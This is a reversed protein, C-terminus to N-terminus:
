LKNPIVNSKRVSPTQSKPNLHQAENQPVPRSFHSDSCKQMKRTEANVTRGYAPQHSTTSIRDLEFFLMRALNFVVAAPVATSIGGRTMSMRFPKNCFQLHSSPLGISHIIRSYHHQIIVVGIFSNSKHPVFVM